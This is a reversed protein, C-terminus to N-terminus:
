RNGRGDLVHPPEDLHFPVASRDPGLPLRPKVLLWALGVAVALLVGLAGHSRM